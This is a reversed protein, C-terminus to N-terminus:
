NFKYLCIALTIKKYISKSCLNWANLKELILLGIFKDNTSFHVCVPVFEYFLYFISNFHM